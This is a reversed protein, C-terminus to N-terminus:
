VLQHEYAFASAATRTSVDLKAFVNQLHRAVTHESIVLSAAIQRNTRGAAVLRLVELERDTLGHSESRGGTLFADARAVDQQAGLALLTERAARAEWAAGDEDGLARCSEAVLLRTAATEYPANLEGWADLSRRAAALAGAVDGEHFLVIGRARAASAALFASGYDDAISGLEAVATRAEELAGCAVLIEVAAPLLGARRSRDSTEALIRRISAAAADLRGQGVRLLALGPQPEFGYRSAAEYAAEAAAREGRLRRLEGQRYFAQATAPRNFGRELRDGAKRAEALADEWEGRLQLIEARHVLCRGTFAVLDPQEDCWRSLVATWEQARRVDFTEVCAIIVGCYVIGTVIPSESRSTAAVMAEDLLPLGAELQGHTALLHGQLHASLAFLEGDSFREAIAVAQAATEAAAQWDGAAEHRFAVPLMLYGHEAAEDPEDQLLRGARGLWGGGPGAEGQFILIMGLWFACRVARLRDGAELFRDHARELYRVCEDDRALLYAAVALQVADEADLGEDDELASLVEYAEAWARAAYARRGRELEV